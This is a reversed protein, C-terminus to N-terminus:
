AVDTQVAFVDDLKRDYTNAWTHGQSGVDILQVTIRLQDGAKRVSGEVITPVGLEAGIQAISKPNAKYHTVSTRAIVQLEQIQSLITILEETLGDAFYEDKPDPSINSFPLVAIRKRDLETMKTAADEIVDDWPMLMEYVEVQISVNKLSQKGISKLPLEFKNRVHDFVQQTLCVGGEQALSQIRSAVNVADGLIDGVSDEIVEGVHIGIRL